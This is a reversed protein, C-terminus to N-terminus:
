PVPDRRVKLPVGLGQAKELSPLGRGKVEKNARVKEAESRGAREESRV